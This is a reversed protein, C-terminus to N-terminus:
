LVVGAGVHLGVLDGRLELAYELVGVFDFHVAKKEVVFVTGLRVSIEDDVFLFLGDHEGRLANGLALLKELRGPQEGVHGMGVHGVLDILRELGMIQELFVHMVDDLVALDDDDVLEAASQHEAPAERVPQVLGDLGLFVDFDALFTLGEGGDRDLIVEPHVLLQGAHGPGGSGLGFLELVNVMEADDDNGGVLRHDAPVPRILDVAGHVFLKRGHDLLDFLDVGGTAGHQDAGDGHRDGLVDALQQAGAANGMLHQVGAVVLLFRGDDSLGSAEVGDGDGGVHGAAAGVDQQAAIGVEEGALLVAGLIEVGRFVRFLAREDELLHLGEAGGFLFFHEFQASEADEAGLAM